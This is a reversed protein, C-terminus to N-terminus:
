AKINKQRHHRFLGLSGLMLPRWLLESIDVYPIHGTTSSPAFAVVLLTREGNFPIFGIGLPLVTWWDQSGTEHHNKRELYQDWALLVIVGQM